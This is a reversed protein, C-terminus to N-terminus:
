EEGRLLKQLGTVDAYFTTEGPKHDHTLEVGFKRMADEATYVQLVTMGEIVFKIRDKGLIAGDQCLHAITSAYSSMTRTNYEVYEAPLIIEVKVEDEPKLEEVWNM